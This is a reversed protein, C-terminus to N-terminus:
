DLTLVRNLNTASFVNRLQENARVIRLSAGHRKCNIHAGMIHGLIATDLSQAESLDLTVEKAGDELCSLVVNKLEIGDAGMVRGILKVTPQESEQELPM